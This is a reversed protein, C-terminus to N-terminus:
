ASARLQEWTPLGWLESLFKYVPELFAVLNEASIAHTRQQPDGSLALVLSRQTMRLLEVMPRFDIGEKVAIYTLLARDVHARRLCLAGAELSSCAASQEQSSLTRGDPALSQYVSVTQLMISGLRETLEKARRTVEQEDPELSTRTGEGSSRRPGDVIADWVGQKRAAVVLGYIEEAGWRSARVNEDKALVLTLSDEMAGLLAVGEGFEEGEIEGLPKGKFEEVDRARRALRERRHSWEADWSTTEDSVTWPETPRFDKLLEVLQTPWRDRSTDTVTLGVKQTLERGRANARDALQELWQLWHRWHEVGVSDGAALASWIGYSTAASLLETRLAVVALWVDPSLHRDRRRRPLL